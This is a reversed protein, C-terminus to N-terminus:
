FFIGTFKFFTHLIGLGESSYNSKGHGDTPGDTRGHAGVSTM